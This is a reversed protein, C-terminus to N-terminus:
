MNIAVLGRVIDATISLVEQEPLGVRGTPEVARSQILSLLSGGPCLEFLFFATLNKEGNEESVTEVFEFLEVINAEKDL